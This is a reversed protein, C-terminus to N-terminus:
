GAPARIDVQEGYRELVVTYTSQEQTSFFPGTLTAERLQGSAEDVGFVAPVPRSPDTTALVAAVASGPIEASVERLVDSGRRKEGTFRAGTAASLLDSLGGKAALLTGPDHAGFRAPDVKAWASGFLQAWVTGSVSVVKVHLTQGAVVVDLTGSFRDPRAVDGAAGTLVAAGGPTTPTTITFHLAPAADLATRAKALTAAADPTASGTAGSGGSKTCGALALAVLVVAVLARARVTPHPRRM